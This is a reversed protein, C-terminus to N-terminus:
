KKFDEETKPFEFNEEYPIITQLESVVIIRQKNQGLPHCSTLTLASFGQLYLVSLDTPEVIKTEKYRYVYIVKGDALYLLDKEGLTHIKKFLNAYHSYGSRHAAISVNRNGEGPMQSCEYLGPGTRLDTQKTGDVVFEDCHIRPIVLRLEGTKYERRKGEIFLANKPWEKENSDYEALGIFHNEDEVAPPHNFDNYARWLKVCEILFIVATVIIAVALIASIQKLIRKKM